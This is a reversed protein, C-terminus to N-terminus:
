TGAVAVRDLEKGLLKEIRGRLPWLAPSLELHVRLRDADVSLTGRVGPAGISMTHDDDWATEARYRSRLTAELGQLRGRVEDLNGEYARDVELKM